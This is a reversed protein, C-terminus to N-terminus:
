PPLWVPDRGGSGRPPVLGATLKSHRLLVVRAALRIAFRWLEEPGHTVRGATLGCRKSAARRLDRTGSSVHRDLGNGESDLCAANCKETHGGTGLVTGSAKSARM